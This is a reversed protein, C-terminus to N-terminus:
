ILAHAPLCGQLFEVHLGRKRRMGYHVEGVGGSFDGAGRIVWEGCSCGYLWRNYCERNNKVSLIMSKCQNPKCFKVGMFATM